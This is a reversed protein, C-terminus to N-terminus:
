VPQKFLTFYLQKRASACLGCLQKDINLDFVEAYKAGRRSFKVILRENM